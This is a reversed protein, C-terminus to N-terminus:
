ATLDDQWSALFVSMAGARLYEQIEMIDIRTDDGRDSDYIDPEDDYADSYGDSVSATELATEDPLPMSTIQPLDKIFESSLEDNEVQKDIGASQVGLWYGSAWERTLLVEDHLTEATNNLLLQFSLESDALQAAVTNKAENFYRLQTTQMANEPDLETVLATAWGHPQEVQCCYACLLGHVFAPTFDIEANDVAASFDNEDICSDTEISPNPKNM